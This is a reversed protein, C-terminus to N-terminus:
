QKETNAGLDKDVEKQYSGRRLNLGCKIYDVISERSLQMIGMLLSCEGKIAHARLVGNSLFTTTTTPGSAVTVTAASTPLATIDSNNSVMLASFYHSLSDKLSRKTSAADVQAKAIAYASALTSM